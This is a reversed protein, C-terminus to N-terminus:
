WGPTRPELGMKSKVNLFNQEIKKLANLFPCFYIFLTCTQAMNLFTTYKIM